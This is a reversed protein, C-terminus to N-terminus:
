FVPRNIEVDKIKWASKLRLQTNKLAVTNNTNAFALELGSLAWGNNPNIILDKNLVPIAESNRGTAILMDGLYQRAPLPWDRPENYIIHDEAKVADQLLNIAATYQKQAGAIKGRLILQAVVASEYAPSLNDEAFKLSKDSIKGELATLEGNALTVNGKACYALGRAFHLYVSAYALTGVPKVKLIDDWKGFRVNTITPQMYIYQMFDGDADGSSLYEKPVLSQLKKSADIAIKYSGGM